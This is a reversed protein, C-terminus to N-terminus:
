RSLRLSCGELWWEQVMFWCDCLEPHHVYDWGPATSTVPAGRSGGLEAGRRTVGPMSYYSYFSSPPPWRTKLNSAMAVTGNM